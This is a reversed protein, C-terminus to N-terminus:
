GGCFAHPRATGTAELPRSVVPSLSTKCGSSSTSQQISAKSIPRYRRAYKTDAGVSSRGGYLTEMFPGIDHRDFGSNHKRFPTIGFDHLYAKGISAESYIRDFPRTIGHKIYLTRLEQFIRWTARM